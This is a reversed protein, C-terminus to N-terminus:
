TRNRSKKYDYNEDYDITGFLEIIEQQKRRQIFEKLALTVTDKKTKLGGIKLADKLLNDDIALNTPM